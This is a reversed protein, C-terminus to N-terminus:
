PLEFRNSPSAGAFTFMVLAWPDVYPPPAAATTTAMGQGRGIDM